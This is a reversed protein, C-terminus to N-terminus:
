LLLIYLSALVGLGIAPKRNGINATPPSVFASSPKLTASVTGTSYGTATSNYLMRSSLQSCVLTPTADTASTSRANEVFESHNGGPNLSFVMGSHCHSVKTHQACFFWQPDHTQVKFEVVNNGSINLPNFQRFGTDFRGNPLCPDTLNSQTLTHNLALFDFIITSGISANLSSPSFALEGLAGVTIVLTSNLHSPNTSTSSNATPLTRNWAWPLHSPQLITTELRPTSGQAVAGFALFILTFILTMIKQHYNLWQLTALDKNESQRVLYGPFPVQHVPMVLRV